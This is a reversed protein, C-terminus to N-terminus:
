SQCEQICLATIGSCLTSRVCRQDAECDADSTCQTCAVLVNDEICVTPGDVGRKCSCDAGCATGPCCIGRVCKKDCRTEDDKCVLKCKGNACIGDRCPKGDAEKKCKGNQRKRCPGCRKRAGAGQIRVASTAGGLALLGALARSVGRRSRTVSLSRALADFRTADV